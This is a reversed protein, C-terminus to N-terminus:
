CLALLTAIGCRIRRGFSPLFLSYGFVLSFRGIGNQNEAYLAQSPNVVVDGTKTHDLTL